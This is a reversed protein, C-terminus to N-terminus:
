EYILKVDDIVLKSGVYEGDSLNNYGPTTFYDYDDKNEARFERGSKFMVFINTAELDKIKYDFDIQKLKFEENESGEVIQQESLITKVGNVNSEIVVKVVFQDDSTKRSSAPTYKYQFSMAKPRSSFPMAEWKDEPKINQTQYESLYKGTYLYGPDIRKMNGDWKTIWANGPATTGAGWGITRILAASSGETHESTQLTGSNSVYAYNTTTSGGDSTTKDNITNWGGSSSGDKWPYWRKWYGESHNYWEEFGANPLQLAEETRFSIEESRVKENYEARIKYEKDSSLGALYIYATTRDYQVTGTISIWSSNEDRYEFSAPFVAENALEMVIKARNTWIDGRPAYVKIYPTINLSLVVPDSVFPEDPLKDTVVLSYDYQIPTDVGAKLTPILEKFSVRASTENESIFSVGAPVNELLNYPNGMQQGNQYITLMCSEMKNPASVVIAYEKDTTKEMLDQRISNSFGEATLLPANDPYLKIKLSQSESIHPVKLSDSVVLTYEYIDIGEEPVQTQLKEVLKKFYISAKKVRKGEEMNMNDWVLAEQDQLFKKDADSLNALDYEKPEQGKKSISLLCKGITGPAAIDVSYDKITVGKKIAQPAGSAFEKLEVSVGNVPLMYDPVYVYVPVEKTEDNITVKVTLGRDPRDEQASNFIIRVNDKPKISPITFSFQKVEGTDPKVTLIGKLQEGDKDVQFWGGRSEEQVYDLPEATHSTSISATHTPYVLCFSDTYAVMVRANTLSCTIDLKTTMNEKIIFDSSGEFRPADFSAPVQKGMSARFKYNGRELEVEDPMDIYHEYTEVVQNDEGQLIEIKYQDTNLFPRLEPYIGAKTVPTNEKLGTTDAQLGIQLVGSHERKLSDSECSTINVLLSIVFLLSVMTRASSHRKTMEMERM